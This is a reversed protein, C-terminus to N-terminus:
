LVWIGLVCRGYIREIDFPKLFRREGYLVRVPCARRNGTKGHRGIRSFPHFVTRWVTQIRTHM